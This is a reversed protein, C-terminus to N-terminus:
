LGKTLISVVTNLSLFLIFNQKTFSFKNLGTIFCSKFCSNQIFHSVVRSIQQCKIYNSFFTRLSNMCIILLIILDALGARINSKEVKM